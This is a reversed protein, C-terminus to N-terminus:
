KLWELVMGLADPICFCESTSYEPVRLEYGLLLGPDLQSDPIEQSHSTNSFSLALNVRESVAYKRGHSGPPRSAEKENQVM